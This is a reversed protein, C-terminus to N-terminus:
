QHPEKPNRYDPRYDGPLMDALLALARAARILAADQKVVENAWQVDPSALISLARDVVQERTNRGNEIAPAVTDIIKRQTTM